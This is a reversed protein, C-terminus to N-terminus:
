PFHERKKKMKKNYMKTLFPWVLMSALMACSVILTPANEKFTSEGSNIKSFTTSLTVISSAGMTIMPGLTYLIPVEQTNEKQPPSDIRMDLTKVVRRLRPSKLFYDEEKYMVEDLIEEDTMNIDSGLNIQSLNSMNVVLNNLPNNIFLIDFVFVVKVGYINLVDGNAVKFEEQTVIENNLYVRSNINKKLFWGQNYVFSIDVDNYLSNNIYIDNASNNGLKIEVNSNVKYQLFTNDIVDDVFLINKGGNREIIMYQKNNLLMRDVYANQVIIKSNNGGTIYWKDDNASINVVNREKSDTMWFNGVIKNPLTFVNIKDDDFYYLNM